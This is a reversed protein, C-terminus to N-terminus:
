RERDRWNVAGLSHVRARRKRYSPNAALGYKLTALYDKKSIDLKPKFLDMNKVQLWQVNEIDNVIGSNGEFIRLKPVNTRIKPVDGTTEPIYLVDQIAQIWREDDKDQYTTPRARVGEDNLVDIFSKLGDGGSMSSSGLSDCVIDVVPYDRYWNRLQRAFEVPTAKLSLEKIYFLQEDHNVGLLSAVHPKSMAPDIAVVCPWNGPWKFPKVIHVERKFLHALALGSLDYFEGHLRIRREKESLIAEMHEIYGTRLNDKNVYTSFRFCDTDKRLGQSWPEIIDTRIWSQSIPTGIILVRGETGITRGGRKLAIYIHRPMPEDAVLHSWEISEFAMPEQLHFMFIIQSGNQLGIEKIYPKGRKHFQWKSIDFWKQIEPLWVDAVKEPSDLLVIVRAPVKTFKETVPNYGQAAWVADHVALATKGSGNAATVWRELAQSALVPRQGENADFIAQANRARRKKEQIVDYLALKQERTLKNVDLKGMIGRFHEMAGGNGRSEAV